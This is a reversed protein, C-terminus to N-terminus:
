DSALWRRELLRAARALYGTQELFALVTYLIFLMPVFLLVLELGQLARGLFGAMWALRRYTAVM